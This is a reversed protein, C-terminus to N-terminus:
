IIQIIKKRGEGRTPSPYPTLPNTRSAIYRTRNCRYRLRRVLLIPTEFQQKCGLKVCGIRSSVIDPNFSRTVIPPQHTVSCTENSREFVRAADRVRCFFHALGQLDQINFM